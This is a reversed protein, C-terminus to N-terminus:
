NKGFFTHDEVNTYGADRLWEALRGPLTTEDAGRVLDIGIADSTFTCERLSVLVVYDAAWPIKDKRLGYSLRVKASPEVQMQGFKAKGDFFLDLGFKTFEEPRTKAFTYAASVAGCLGTAGQDISHPRRVRLALQIAFVGPHIGTFAHHPKTKVYDRIQRILKARNEPSTPGATVKKTEGKVWVALANLATNVAKATPEGWDFKEYKELKGNDKFRPPLTNYLAELKENATPFKNEVDNELYEVLETLTM